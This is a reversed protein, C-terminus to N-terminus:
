IIYRIKKRIRVSDDIFNNTSFTINQPKILESHLASRAPKVASSNRIPFSTLYFGSVTGCPRALPGARREWTRDERRFFSDLPILFSPAHSLSGNGQLIAGTLWDTLPWFRGTRLGRWRPLAPACECEAGCVYFLCVFESGLTSLTPPFSVSVIASFMASANWGRAGTFIYKVREATARQCGAGHCKYEARLMRGALLQTILMVFKFTPYLYYRKLICAAWSVTNLCRSLM